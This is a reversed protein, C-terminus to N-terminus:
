HSAVLPEFSEGLMWAEYEGNDTGQWRAQAYKYSALNDALEGQKTAYAKLGSAQLCMSSDDSDDQTLWLM